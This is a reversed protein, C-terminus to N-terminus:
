CVFHRELQRCAGYLLVCPSGCPSVTKMDPVNEQAKSFLWFLVGCCSIQLKRQLPSMRTRVPSILRDTYRYEYSKVARTVFYGQIFTYTTNSMLSPGGCLCPKPWWDENEVGM